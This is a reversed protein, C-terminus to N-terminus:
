SSESAAGDSARRSVDQSSPGDGEPVSTGLSEQYRKAMLEIKARLEPSYDYGYSLSQAPPLRDILQILIHAARMDGGIARDVLLTLFAEFKAIKITRGNKVVTIPEELKSKLIAGLDITKARQRKSSGSPNGSQGKKFQTHNPPRRYGPRENDSNHTM